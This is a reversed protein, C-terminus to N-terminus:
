DRSLGVNIIIYFLAEYINAFIIRGIEDM